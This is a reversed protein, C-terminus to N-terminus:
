GNEGSGTKDDEAKNEYARAYYGIGSRGYYGKYAYKYGSKYYAKKSSNYADPVIALIPINYRQKLYEEDRVTTNMLDQIIIIAGGIIAGIVAGILAYRNNSPTASVTPLVAADVLRVSSGDVIDAIRDPLIDVITDVIVEADSANGCTASISFIETNNVSSAQVIGRLEGVSYERSLDDAAKVQVMELTTRSQLIIVYVDLLSKAASLQSSSFTISTGGVSVSSNNVYMMATSTYTAEVSFMAASFAISGCLIMSIVILWLKKWLLRALDLLDIEIM